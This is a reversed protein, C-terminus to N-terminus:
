ATRLAVFSWSFAIGCNLYLQDMFSCVAEGQQAPRNQKPCSNPCLADILRLSGAADRDLPRRYNAKPLHRRRHM